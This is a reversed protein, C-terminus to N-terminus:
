VCFKCNECTSGFYNRRCQCVNNICSGGNQCPPDCVNPDDVIFIPNCIYIRRHLYICYEYVSGVTKVPVELTIAVANVSMILM